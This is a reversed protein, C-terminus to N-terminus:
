IWVNNTIKIWLEETLSGQTFPRYIYTHIHIIYLYIYTHIYIYVYIYICIYICMYIYIRIYMYIYITYMHMCMCVYIYICVYTYIYLHIHTCTYKGRWASGLQIYWRLLLVQMVHHIVHIFACTMHHLHKQQFCQAKIWTFTCTSKNMYM